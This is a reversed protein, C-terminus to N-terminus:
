GSARMADRMADAGRKSGAGFDALMAGAREAHEVAAETNGAARLINALENLDRAVDPHGPGFNQEDIALARRIAMNAPEIQGSARLMVAINYLISAVTPHDRGCSAEAVRLAEDFKERALDVEMADRFACGLNNLVSAVKPHENGYHERYVSLAWELHYRAEDHQGTTLLCMAYNNSVAAVRPDAQGYVDRDIQLALEYHGAASALDGLKQLVRALNNAADSVRPHRSGYLGQALFVARELVTQAEHLRMQKLLYRGANSLISEVAQPAAGLQDAHRAAALAHPLTAACRPWTSPNMGDFQLQRAALTAAAASWRAKEEATLRQRVLAGVLRHISVAGPTNDILSYRDLPELLDELRYEVLGALAQPLAGAGEILMTKDIQEPGLFALLHLLAAAPASEDLIQRFTLELTMALSDPHDASLRGRQLLEGWHTEFRRLYNAYTSNTQEIVAAAQELALPLDGLTQALKGALGDANPRNTRWVLFKVSEDRSMEHVRLVKTALDGWESIQSTILVHGARNPLHNKIDEGRAVNDFVLLWQDVDDLARRLKHRIEDLSADGALQLGLRNALQAYGLGLATPDEASLWWIVRYDARRRFACELAIQSKGVGGMGCLVVRKPGQRQHDFARAVEDLVADRGTFYLNRPYPVGFIQNSATM